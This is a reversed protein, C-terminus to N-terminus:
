DAVGQDSTCDAFVVNALPAFKMYEFYRDWSMKEKSQELLAQWDHANIGYPDFCIARSNALGVIQIDIRYHEVFRDHNKAIQELLSKGVVGTGLLFLHVKQVPAAFAQFFSVSMIVAYFIVKNM